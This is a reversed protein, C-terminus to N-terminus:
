CVVLDRYEVPDLYLQSHEDSDEKEQDTEALEPHWKSLRERSVGSKFLRMTTPDQGKHIEHLEEIERRTLKKGNDVEKAKTQAFERFTFPVREEKPLSTDVFKVNVIERHRSPSIKGDHKKWLRYVVSNEDEPPADGRKANLAIRQESSLKSWDDSIKGLDGKLEDGDVFSQDSRLLHPMLRHHKKDKSSFIQTNPLYYCYELDKRDNKDPKFLEPNTLGLTWLFNAKLCFFAYPAFAELPRRGDKSWRLTVANISAPPIAFERALITFLGPLLQRSALLEDVVSFLEEDSKPPVFSLGARAIRDMYLKLNLPRETRRRFRQAWDREDNNFEGQEWQALNENELPTEVITALSGKETRVITEGSPLFRGDMPIERGLLSNALRGHYDLTLGHNGSVRYAHAAIRTTGRPDEEKTLDALIEDVLIHPVVQFFYRDLSDVESNKLGFVVSKDLIIRQGRM